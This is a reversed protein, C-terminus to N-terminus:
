ITVFYGTRLLMESSFPTCSFHSFLFCFLFSFYLRMSALEKGTVSILRLRMPLEFDNPIEYNVRLNKSPREGAM